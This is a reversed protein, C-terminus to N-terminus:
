TTEREPALAPTTAATSAKRRSLAPRLRFHYALRLVDRGMRLGDVAPRVTSEHGHHYTIPVEAVGVGAARARMLLEVDFAFGPVRLDALLDRAVASPMLKFGCQTDRVALGTALRVLANFTRGVVVRSMPATVKSGAVDRSGIAITAGAAIAGALRGTESLPAALDVDCLLLFPASAARAGRSVADGKGQNGDLAPVVTWGARAEVEALLSPTKDTSGDDVLVVQELTLDPCLRAGLLPGVADVFAALRLEENFLPVVLSVGAPEGGPSSM